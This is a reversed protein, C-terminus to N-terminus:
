LQAIISCILCIQLMLLIGNPFKQPTYKLNKAYSFIGKMNNINNTKWKSIDPLTVLSSCGYFLFSIDRINFTTWKSIDPIYKLSFCESFLNSINKINILNWKSIDPLWELNSCGAFMFSINTVNSMEWNSINPLEKLSSCNYFMYSMNNIYLANLDSIINLSILSSCGFFLYSLDKLNKEFLLNVKLLEEKKDLEYFEILKTRKNNIYLSCNDFNRKIFKSGLIRIKNSIKSKRYTMEFEPFRKNENYFYIQGM